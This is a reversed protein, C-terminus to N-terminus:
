PAFQPMVEDMFLRIGDTKPFDAFRIQMQSVGLAAWQRIQAVVQEPTGVLASEPAAYFPSAAAMREADEQTRAVAVCECQWTKKITGFDRGVAACHGRLVDLKHAYTERTGGGNWWDAHKAVVRLTLQEGGGGIMIPPLPDPKPNLCADQVRYYQGEYTVNDATWLRKAIEVAEELQRIRVSPKPFEWNYARYEDDKWGAGIGFIVKGPIFACLNAVMKALLAPNRYSQCLVITGWPLNPYRSALFTLTTWCETVPTEVAQWRAWPLVHDTV